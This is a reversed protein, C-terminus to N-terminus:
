LSDEIPKKKFVHLRDLRDGSFVIKELYGAGFPEKYYDQQVIFHQTNAGKSSSQEVVFYM